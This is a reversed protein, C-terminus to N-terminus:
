LGPGISVHFQMNKHNPDNLPFGFDGRVLGIPSVWRLGVGAGYRLPDGLNMMANGVDFFTALGWGPIVRYEYEASAVALATGGIVNNAADRSGLRDYGYGRVSAAGGAFFRVSPPLEHFDSTGMWGMEARGIVRDRGTYSRIWKAQAYTRVYTADSAISRHAGSVDFLLKSGDKPDIPDNTRIRTWSAEPVLLGPSGQELGVTFKARRYQLQFAEQWGAWLRSLNLGGAMTREEAIATQNRTYGASVTLVDSRPYPWPIQYKAGGSQEISSMTLDIEARHGRRNLRRLEVAGRAHAGNDTGYGLGMTYKEPKSPVLTVVIPLEHGQALDRRPQVEVRSWYPSNGLAQELALLRNFDVVDGRHWTVYGELLEPDVADQEFTVPGFVYRPGTEFQLVVAAMNREADIRLEHRIFHGDIYGHKMATATFTERTADYTPHHLIDGHHIPFSALLKQFAPDQAGEGLVRVDLSDVRMPPGPDIQYRAQWAGNEFELESWVSPRYYGFPQLALEIENKASEHLKRVEAETATGKQDAIRLHALVNHREEGAVGTVSVKIPADGTARAAPASLVLALLAVAVGVGVGLRNPNYSSARREM